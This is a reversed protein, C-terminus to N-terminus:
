RHADLRLEAPAPDDAGSRVQARWFDLVESLSDRLSIETKWGTAIALKRSDSMLRSVNVPRLRSADEVVSIRLGSLEILTDLLQRVLVCHDSGLNYVEGAQGHVLALYYGRVIDRVDSFDREVDLNGVAISPERKGMEIEAIQHAFDPAVFGLRQRSGIHNFPRVRVSEVADSIYYQLGLFDQSIKSVGYPTLPRLPTEEDVPLDEPRVEGYEESSGVVLVRASLKMRAVAELINLQARINNELTFWPDSRSLSPIPQAALHFIYDPRTEDLIFRVVELRSLEAPYLVLRDRLHAINDLRGYVTGSVQWSTNELLYEALHSGVFGSIGTILARLTKEGRIRLHSREEWGCRLIIISWGARLLFLFTCFQAVKLPRSLAPQGIIRKGPDPVRALIGTSCWRRSRNGQWRLASDILAVARPRDLRSGSRGQAVSRFEAALWPFAASLATSENPGIATAPQWFGRRIRRQAAWARQHQGARLFRM